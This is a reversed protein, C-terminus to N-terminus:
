ETRRGLRFPRHGECGILEDFAVQVTVARQAVGMRMRPRVFVVGVLAMLVRVALVSM